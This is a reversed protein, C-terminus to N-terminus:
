NSIDFWTNVLITTADFVVVQGSTPSAASARNAAFTGAAIGNSGTALKSEVIGASASLNSNDLHGNMETQIASFANVTDVDETANPQGITPLTLNLLGM